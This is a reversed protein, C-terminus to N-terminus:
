ALLKHSHISDQLTTLKSGQLYSTNSHHNDFTLQWAETIARTSQWYGVESYRPLVLNRSPFLTECLVIPENLQGKPIIIDRYNLSAFHFKVLVDNDSLEPIPVEKFKLDDFGTTGEVAWTKTTKPIDISGM